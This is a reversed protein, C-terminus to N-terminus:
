NKTAKSFLPKDLKSEWGLKQFLFHYICLNIAIAIGAGAITDELFHQYLYMRSIGVLVAFISALIQVWKNKSFIAIAFFVAFAGNTHGSPFSLNGHAHVDAVPTYFEEGLFKIPRPSQFVVRKLFQCFVSNLAAALAIFSGYFRNVVLLVVIAAVIVTGDGLLTMGKFFVDWFASHNQNLWIVVDGKEFVLLGISGAIIYLV